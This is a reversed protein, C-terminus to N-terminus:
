QGGVQPPITHHGVWNERREVASLISAAAEYIADVASHYAQPFTISIKGPEADLARIEEGEDIVYIYPGNKISGMDLGGQASIDNSNAGLAVYFGFTGWGGFFYTNEQVKNATVVITDDEVDTGGSVAHIECATLERM